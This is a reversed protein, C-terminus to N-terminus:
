TASRELAALASADAELAVFPITEYTRTVTFATGGLEGMIADRASQIQQRQSQRQAPTLAAEPAATRALQVIGRARGTLSAQPAAAAAVTDPAATARSPAAFTQLLAICLQAAVHQADARRGLRM